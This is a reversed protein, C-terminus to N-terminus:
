CRPLRRGKAVRVQGGDHGHRPENANVFQHPSISAHFGTSGDHVVADVTRKADIPVALVGMSQAFSVELAVDVSWGSIKRAAHHGISSVVVPSLTGEEVSDHLIVVTRDVEDLAHLIPVNVWVHGEGDMLLNLVSPNLNLRQCALPGM